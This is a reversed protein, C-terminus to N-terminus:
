RGEVTELMEDIWNLVVVLRLDQAEDRRIMVFRQGGPAVDHDSHYPWESYNGEFLVTRSQLSFSGSTSVRAAVLADGYRYFLERGDRSWIPSTGGDVSIKRRRGPEPFGNVYVEYQGTLDSCYALWQGDPSIAPADERSTPLDLYRRPTRDGELPLVMIDSKIDEQTPPDQERYIIYQNDPSWAAPYNWGDNSVLTEWTGSGDSRAMRLEVADSTESAYVM